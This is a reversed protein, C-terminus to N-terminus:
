RLALKPRFSLEELELTHSMSSDWVGMQCNVVETVETVETEDTVETVETVKKLGNWDKWCGSM